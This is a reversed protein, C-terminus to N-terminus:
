RGKVKLIEEFSGDKIVVHQDRIETVTWNYVQDGIKCIFTKGQEDELLALANKKDLIGKLFVKKRPIIAKPTKSTSRKTVPKSNLQSFPSEVDKKFLFPEPVNKESLASDIINSTTYAKKISLENTKAKSVEEPLIFLTQFIMKLALITALITIGQGILSTTKKNLVVVEM